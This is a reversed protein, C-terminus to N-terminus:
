IGDSPQSMFLNSYENSFMNYYDNPDGYNHCPRIGDALHKFYAIVDFSLRMTVPKKLKTAYPNRKGKLKSFDYETRM